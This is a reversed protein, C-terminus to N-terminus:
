KSQAKYLEVFKAKQEVTLISMLSEIMDARANVMKTANQTAQAIMGARDVGNVTIFEGMDRSTKMMKRNEKMAQRMAQRQTKIAVRQEKTLNLQKMIKQMDVKERKSEKKNANMERKDQATDAKTVTKEVTTVTKEVAVVPAESTSEANLAVTAMVGAITVISLTKFITM